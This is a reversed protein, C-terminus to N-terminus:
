WAAEECSPQAFLEELFANLLKESAANALWIMLSEVLIEAQLRVGAREVLRRAFHRVVTEEDAPSFSRRLTRMDRWKLLVGYDILAIAQDFSRTGKWSSPVGLM